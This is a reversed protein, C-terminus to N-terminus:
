KIGKKKSIRGGIKGGKSGLESLREPDNKAMWYWGGTNGNKGGQEGIKAYYDEGYKAKNTAAAAKGGAKTGAM